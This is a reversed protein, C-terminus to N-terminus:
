RDAQQKQIEAQEKLDKIENMTKKANETDSKDLYDQATTKLVEIKNLLEQLKTM